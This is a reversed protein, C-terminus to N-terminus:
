GGDGLSQEKEPLEPSTSCESCCCAKPLPENWATVSPSPCRTGLSQQGGPTGPLPLPVSRTHGRQSMLFLTPYANSCLLVQLTPSLQTKQPSQRFARPSVPQHLAIVQTCYTGTCRLRPELGPNPTTLSGNHKASMRTMQQLIYSNRLTSTFFVKKPNIYLVLMGWHSLSLSDAQWHLLHLHSGPDPLDGPFPFPLGSWHEQRSFGM